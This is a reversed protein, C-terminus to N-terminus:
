GRADLMLPNIDISIIDRLPDMMLRSIGLVADAFAGVALPPEGRVGKLLPAIRLKSLAHFVDEDSVPPLLLRVDPMAEVYRGGDGIVIVPGFVPDRHAGIMMERGGNAMRAIIVGDFAAGHAELGAKIEAYATRLAEPDDVNLRVIGLESKHASRCLRHPIVRLGARAVIALSAAENLMRAPSDTNVRAMQLSAEPGVNKRRGARAILDRHRMFRYLAEVAQTEIAFVPLGQAHFRASVGPQPVAVVVPKCTARACAAADRAFLDIDYGTGTVPFGILFADAAPDRSLIRLSEGFLRSNTLLAGTLDVPNTTTAFGPLIQALEATTSAQLEALPMGIMSAADAAMVCTAGSSSVAVLRKGAPQWGKLYLEVGAVLEAMDRARLIGHHELFADVVRDENALAGTHSRAAMQGAATRGSKLAIIPLERARAIRAAEALHHPDPLGELYLLLLKLDPDQAVACALECATVDCDNGTAHAHRIGIGRQRLLGYPVVSMAGSQSIIGVPGDAPEVEVFMTSFSAIAGTGFNALGQTNPGIIRMGHAHARRTMEREREKGHVPDSEGFGATIVIAIKVGAAGCEDLAEVAAEGAIAIVAVDPPEPVDALTPYTRFGQTATRKPNIPYVRGKFGFRALFALPRGGIRNPNESAGVIAISQPNLAIQLDPLM